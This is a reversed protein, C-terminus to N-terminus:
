RGMNGMTHMITIAGPGLIVVFMAPFICFVLPFLMKVPIQNALERVRIKRKVRLTDSHTRLVRSISSGLEEAQCIAAMFASLDDVQTRKALNRWAEQRSKGLRIETLTQEFEETLPGSEREIIESIAADLGLGAEVSVVLLDITNPLDKRIERRRSQAIRDILWGPALLGVSAAAIAALWIINTPLLGRLLILGGTALGVLTSVMRVMLFAEATLGWPHAAQQLRQRNTQLVSSPALKGIVGSARELMPVLIRHSWPKTLESELIPEPETATKIQQLQRTHASREINTGIAFGIAVVLAFDTGAIVFPM